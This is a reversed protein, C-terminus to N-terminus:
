LCSVTKAIACQCVRIFGATNKLRDNRCDGDVASGDAAIRDDEAFVASVAAFSEASDAFIIIVAVSIHGNLFDKFFRAIDAHGLYALLHALFHEIVAKFTETEALRGADVQGAFAGANQPRHASPRAVANRSYREALFNRYGGQLDGARKADKGVASFGNPRITDLGNDVVVAIDDIDLSGPSVAPTM